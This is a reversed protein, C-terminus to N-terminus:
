EQPTQLTAPLAAAPPAPPAAGPEGGPTPKNVAPGPESPATAQPFDAAEAMSREHARQLDDSAARVATDHYKHDVGAAKTQANLAEIRLRMFTLQADIQAEQAAGANKRALAMNLFAHTQHELEQARTLGLEAQQQQMAMQMATTDPQVFLTDIRDMNAAQFLRKRIEVQNVLPDGKFMMLIESRALKQMDTTMTPDAIPTVGGGLRYDEKTVERAVDGALYRETDKMNLRNLRYLKALEAKEARWVRKYIATYVKLGQEILALITTPPANAIQADGQLVSNLSALEKCEGILLGLLQFLVTSPGKFDPSYIADRISGGKANVRVFKGVQFLTQGSPMGLQDSIFGGGANQLTGADFMQNLTTNIAHNLPKILHGFGMPHSGGDINPLFPYLTYQDAPQIAKITNGDETADIGEKDYRAVIRVVKASRHHVTVIYPEPYGDEDLDLRRHQEIFFHPADPDAQDGSQVADDYNFRMGEGAGGPGYDYHIWMGDDADEDDDPEDAGYRENETIQHPYVLLKESHRPALEFSPAHYNWVLNMLSVLLSRNRGLLPDHFSKRAFGGCVPMQHLGLDTQPEWEPMEELLQWSMHEGIRDARKQKEGPAVLWLPEVPESPQPGPPAGQGPAAGIPPAPAPPPPTAAAAMPAPAAGGM